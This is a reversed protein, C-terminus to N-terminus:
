RNGLAAASSDFSVAARRVDFEHPEFGLARAFVGRAEFWTKAWVFRPGELPKLDLRVAYWVVPDAPPSELERM